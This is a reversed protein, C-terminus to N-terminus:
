VHAGSFARLLWHGAVGIMQLAPRAARRAAAALAAERPVVPRRPMVLLGSRLGDPVGFPDHYAPRPAGRMPTPELEALTQRATPRM